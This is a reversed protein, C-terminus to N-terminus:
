DIDEYPGTRYLNLETLYAQPDLGFLIESAAFSYDTMEFVGYM